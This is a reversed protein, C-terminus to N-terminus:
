ESGGRKRKEALSHFAEEFLHLVDHYFHASHESRMEHMVAETTTIFGGCRKRTEEDHECRQDTLM